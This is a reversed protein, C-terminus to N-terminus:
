VLGRNKIEGTREAHGFVASAARRDPRHRGMIRVDPLGDGERRNAAARARPQKVNTGGASDGHM